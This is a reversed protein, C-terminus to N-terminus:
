VDWRRSLKLNALGSPSFAMSLLVMRGVIDLLPLRSLIVSSARSEQSSPITISSEPSNPPSAQSVTVQGTEFDM